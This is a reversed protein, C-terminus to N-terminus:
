ATTPAVGNSCPAGPELTQPGQEFAALFEGIRAEDVGDLVLQKGWASLVVAGPLDEMPSVIVYAGPRYHGHLAAVDEAALGPDHTIWVAGHELSHVANEVPVQSAYVGCDLWEPAHDGGAPPHMPYDVTGDTHENTLGPFTQVGEPDGPEVQAGAQPAGSGEPPRTVLVYGTVAAGIALVLVVAAGGIIWALAGGGGRRPPRPPPGFGGPGPPVGYPPPGGPGPPGPHGHPGPGGPPPTAPGPQHPEPPIAM